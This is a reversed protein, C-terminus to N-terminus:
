GTQRRGNESVGGSRRSAAPRSGTSERDLADRRVRDPEGDPGVDAATPSTAISRQASLRRMGERPRNGRVSSRCPRLCRGSGPRSCSTSIISLRVVGLVEELREEGLVRAQECAVLHTPRRPSPQEDTAFGGQRGLLVASAAPRDIVQEEVLVRHRRQDLDLSTAVRADPALDDALHEVVGRVRDHVPRDLAEPCREFRVAPM